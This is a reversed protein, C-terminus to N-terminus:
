SYKQENRQRSASDRLLEIRIVRQSGLRTWARDTLQGLALQAVIVIKEAM